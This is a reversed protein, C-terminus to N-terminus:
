IHAAFYRERRSVAVYSGAAACATLSMEGMYLVKSKNVSNERNRSREAVSKRSGEAGKTKVIRFLKTGVSLQWSM